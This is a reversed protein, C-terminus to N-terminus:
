VDFVAQIMKTVTTNHIQSAQAIPLFHAEYTLNVGLKEITISKGKSIFFLWLLPTDPQWYIFLHM